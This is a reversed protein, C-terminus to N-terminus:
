ECPKLENLRRPTQISAQHTGRHEHHEGPHAPTAWEARRGQTWHGQGREGGWRLCVCQGVARGVGRWPWGLSVINYLDGENAVWGAVKQKTKFSNLGIIGAFISLFMIINIIFYINFTTLTSTIVNDQNLRKLKNAENNNFNVCLISLRWLVNDYFKNILTCHLYNFWGKAPMIPKYYYWLLLSVIEYYLFVPHNAILTVFINPYFYLSFTVIQRMLWLVFM